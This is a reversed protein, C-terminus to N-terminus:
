GIVITQQVAISEEPGLSQRIAHANDFGILRQGQPGHVGHPCESSREVSQVSFRIV